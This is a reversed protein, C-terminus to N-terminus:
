TPAGTPDLRPPAPRPKGSTGAMMLGVAERDAVAAPGADLLRGGQAVVVRTALALVEDLDESILLVGAGREAAERLRRHVEAQAGVDLGRTPQDALVLRPPRGAVGGLTRALVLKQVNGGSLLRAPADPGPGRVDYDRMLAEASARMARPRLVGRRSVAPDRLREIALNEAVSMAGIVGDRQRDEPVRAVGRAAMARPDVRRVAEGVVRLTGREPVALGAALAALAAQGNGSVGALGVIEGEGVILSADTLRAGAHAASVGELELVPPGPARAPRAGPGREIERGVMLRALARPTAQAIDMAGAMRGRRLVVVRHAVAMVEGFKHSILIVGLGRATLARLTAFLRDAELPALVATPEDLVLARAEGFLAKLIEVRQRAGVGLGDVRADLLVMLGTEAMLREIRGRAPARRWALLSERGLVINELATLNEALTFHQHVMAIGAALAAQPSGPPLAALRGGREVRVTGADPEYRGFLVNMLTTKGAGNEGLLAVVEGPRLVLDVGECAMVAGFRKAIGEMSLLPTPEGGGLERAAGM